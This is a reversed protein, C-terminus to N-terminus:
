RLQNLISSDLKTGLNTRLDDALKGYKKKEKQLRKRENFWFTLVSAVMGPKSQDFITGFASIAWNQERMWEHWEAGSMEYDNGDISAVWKTPLKKWIAYWADEGYQPDDASGFQGIFTEISMNLARIVTPYLSTLDVSGLWPWLGMRPTMVIAGEVKKNKVNSFVKDAAILCAHGFLKALHEPLNHAFNMIGTEVYRVTGLMAAFPVTNEHAMTNVLDVFKYKQDLKVLM